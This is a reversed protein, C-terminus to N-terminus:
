AQWQEVMPDISPEHSQACRLGTHPTSAEPIARALEVAHDLTDAEILYFGGIGKDTLVFPRTSVAGAGDDGRITVTETSRALEGATIV